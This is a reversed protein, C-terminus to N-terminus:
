RWVTDKDFRRLRDGEIYGSWDQKDHELSFGGLRLLNLVASPDMDKTLPDALMLQTVIHAAAHLEKHDLQWRLVALFGILSKERGATRSGGLHTIVSLCDTLAFTPVPPAQLPRPAIRM